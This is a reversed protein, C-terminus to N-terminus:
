GENPALSEIFDTFTNAVFYLKELDEGDDHEDHCWYWITGFNNSKLSMCIKYGGVVEAIAICNEPLINIYSTYVKKLDNYVELNMGFFDQIAYDEISVESLYGVCDEPEGGNYEKLFKVYDEPLDIGVLGKFSEFSNLDLPIGFSQVKIM